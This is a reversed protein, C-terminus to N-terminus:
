TKVMKVYEDVKSCWTKVGKVPEDEGYDVVKRCKPCKWINGGFIRDWNEKYAKTSVQTVVNETM